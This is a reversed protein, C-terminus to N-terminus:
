QVMLIVVELAWGCQPRQVLSMNVSADLACCRSVDKDGGGGGGPPRVKQGVTGNAASPEVTQQGDLLGKIFEARDLYEKFQVAALLVM